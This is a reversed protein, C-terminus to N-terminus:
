VADSVKYARRLADVAAHPAIEKTDLVLLDESDEQFQNGFDEMVTVM